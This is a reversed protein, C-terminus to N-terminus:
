AGAIPEYRIAFHRDKPMCSPYATANILNEEQSFADKRLEFCRKRRAITVTADNTM